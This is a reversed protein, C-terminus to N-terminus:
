TSRVAALRPMAAAGESAFVRGIDMLIVFGEDRKGIARIFEQRWRMGLAPAEEFSTQALEMVEFVRDAMLGVIAVEGGLPVEIVVIRADATHVTEGMGFKSKLDVVPIIKGRVNILGRVFSRSNPVETVAVMDLVEHAVDTELAFVEHDLGFTLVQLPV